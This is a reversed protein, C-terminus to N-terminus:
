VKTAVSGLAVSPGAGANTCTNDFTQAFAKCGALTAPYSDDATASAQASSLLLIVASSIQCKM